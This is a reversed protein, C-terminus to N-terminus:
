VLSFKSHRNGCLGSNEENEGGVALKTVRSVGSSPVKYTGQPLGMMMMM